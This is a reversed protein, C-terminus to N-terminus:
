FDDSFRGGRSPRHTYMEWDDEEEQDGAWLQITDYSKNTVPDFVSGDENIQIGYLNELEEKSLTQIDHIIAM